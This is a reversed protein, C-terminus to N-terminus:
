DNRQTTTQIGGMIQELASSFAAPDMFPKDSGGPWLEISDDMGVFKVQQGISLMSLYRRPILIRGNGDVAVPEVDSLLQRLVMQHTTNWRSLHSRLEAVQADWVDEACLVLCPQFVDKRLVLREVGSAQLTKRFASPVFVRGKADAKAEITGLFRM